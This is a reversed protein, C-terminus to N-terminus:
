IQKWQAEIQPENSQTNERINRYQIQFQDQPQKAM